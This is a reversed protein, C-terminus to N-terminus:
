LPFGIDSVMPDHLTVFSLLSVLELGRPLCLGLLTDVKSCLHLVPRTHHSLTTGPCTNRYGDLLSRLCLTGNSTVSPLPFTTTSEKQAASSWWGIAAGFAHVWNRFSSRWQMAWRMAWSTQSSCPISRRVWTARHSVDDSSFSWKSMHRPLPVCSSKMTPLCSSM